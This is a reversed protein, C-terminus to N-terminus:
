PEYTTNESVQVFYGQTTISLNFDGMTFGGGVNVYPTSYRQNQEDWGFIQSVTIGCSNVLEADLQASTTITGSKGNPVAMLNLGQYLNMSSYDNGNLNLNSSGDTQVFYASGPQLNFDGMTFGGGVNVYPTSYRQNQADWGFIQSVTVGPNASIIAADLESAKAIGTSTLPFPVLNLGSAYQHSMTYGGQANFTVPSGTLGDVSATVTNTSTGPIFYVSALGSSNSLADKASDGGRFTGTGETVAFSVTVNAKPNAYTDTVKVVFPNDLETNSIGQQNNGSEYAITAAAGATGTVTFTRPSNEVSVSSQGGNNLDGDDDIQTCTASVTYTGAKQGVFFPASATGDVGTVATYGTVENGATVSADSFSGKVYSDTNPDATITFTVVYNAAGVGSETVKVVLNSAATGVTVSQTGGSNVIMSAASVTATATATVGNSDTVTIVANGTSDGAATFLGTQDITGPAGDSLSWTYPSTGYEVSFQRSQGQAVTATAPDITLVTVTITSSTATNDTSDTVTVKCTGAGVPTLVAKANDSPDEALTAVTGANASAGEADFEAISWTYSPTGGTASFTLTTGRTVTTKSASVSLAEVSLNIQDTAQSTNGANDKFQVYVTKTGDGSTLTWAKSTAYSEWQGAGYATNSINMQTANTAGLTLTVNISDTSSAGGSISVSPNKPATDDIYYPGRTTQPGWVDEGTSDDLFVAKVHFYYAIGDKGTYSASDTGTTSSPYVKQELVTDSASTSFKFNYGYLTANTYTAADWAMSIVTTRSKSDVTGLTHSTSKLNKVEGDAALAVQGACLVLCCLLSALWGWRVYRHNM